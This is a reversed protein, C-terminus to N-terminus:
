RKLPPSIVIHHMTKEGCFTIHEDELKQIVDDCYVIHNVVFVSAGMRELHRM